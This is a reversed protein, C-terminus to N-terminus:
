KRRLYDECSNKKESCPSEISVEASGQLIVELERKRRNCLRVLIKKRVELDVGDVDYDYWGHCNCRPAYLSRLLEKSVYIMRLETYSLLPMRPLSRDPRLAVIVNPNKSFSGYFQDELDYYEAHLARIVQKQGEARNKMWQELVGPGFSFRSLEYYFLATEVYIQRCACAVITM